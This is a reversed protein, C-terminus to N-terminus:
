RRTTTNTKTKYAWSSWANVKLQTPLEVEANDVLKILNKSLALSVQEKQM